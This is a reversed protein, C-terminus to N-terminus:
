PSIKEFYRSLQRRMLPINLAESAPHTSNLTELHYAMQSVLRQQITEWDTGGATIDLASTDKKGPFVFRFVSYLFRDSGIKLEHTRVPIAKKQFWGPIVEGEGPEIFMRDRKLREAVLTM